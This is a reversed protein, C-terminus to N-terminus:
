WTTDSRSRRDLRQRLVREVIDTRIAHEQLFRAAYSYGCDSEIEIGRDVIDAQQWDHRRNEEEPLVSKNNKKQKM